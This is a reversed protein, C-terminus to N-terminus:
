VLWTEDLRSGGPECRPWNFELLREQLSICFRIAPWITPFALQFEDGQTNIEYGGENAVVGCGGAM